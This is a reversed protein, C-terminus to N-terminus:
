KNAEQFIKLAMDVVPLSWEGSYFLTINLVKYSESINIANKLLFLHDPAMSYVPSFSSNTNKIKSVLNMNVNKIFIKAQEEKPEIVKVGKPTVNRMPEGGTEMNWYIMPMLKVGVLKIKDYDVGAWPHSTYSNVPDVASHPMLFAGLEIAKGNKNNKSDNTISKISKFFDVILDARYSLFEKTGIQYPAKYCVRQGETALTSLCKQAGSKINSVKKCLDMPKISSCNSNAPQNPSAYRIWDLTLGDFNFKNLMIKILSLEHQVVTDLGPNVFPEGTTTQVILDPRVVALINDNFTPFWAHVKINKAHAKDLIYQIYGPSNFDEGGIIKGSKVIYKEVKGNSHTIQSVKPAKFVNNTPKSYPNFYLTGTNMKPFISAPDVARMEIYLNRVKMKVAKEILDDVNRRYTLQANYVSDLDDSYTGWVAGPGRYYSTLTETKVIIGDINSIAFANFSM